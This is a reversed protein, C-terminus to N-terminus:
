CPYTQKRATKRGSKGKSVSSNGKRVVKTPEERSDGGRKLIAEETNYRCPINSNAMQTAWVSSWSPDHSM